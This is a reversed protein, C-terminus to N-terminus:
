QGWAYRMLSCGADCDSVGLSVGLHSQKTAKDNLRPIEMVVASGLLRVALYNGLHRRQTISKAVTAGEREIRTHYSLSSGRLIFPSEKDSNIWSFLDVRHLALGDFNVILLLGMIAYCFYHVVLVNCGRFLPFSIGVELMLVNYLPVTRQCSSDDLSVM